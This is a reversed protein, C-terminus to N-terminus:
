EKKEVFIEDFHKIVVGMAIGAGLSVMPINFDNCSKQIDELVLKLWENKQTETREIESIIESLVAIRNDDYVKTIDFSEELMNHLAKLREEKTTMNKDRKRYLHNSFGENRLIINFAL